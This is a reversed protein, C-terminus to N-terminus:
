QSSAVSGVCMVLGLVYVEVSGNWEIGTCCVIKPSKHLQYVFFVLNISYHFIRHPYQRMVSRLSANQM